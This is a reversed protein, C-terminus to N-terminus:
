GAQSTLSDSQLTLTLDEVTSVTNNFQPQLITEQTLTAPAASDANYALRGKTTSVYGDPGPVHLVRDFAIDLLKGSQGTLRFTNTEHAQGDTAGNQWTRQHDIEAFNVFNRGLLRLLTMQEVSVNEIPSCEVLGSGYTVCMATQGHRAHSQESVSVVTGTDPQVHLVDVTITGADSKGANQGSSSATTNITFGYVFHRSGPYTAAILTAAAFAFIM